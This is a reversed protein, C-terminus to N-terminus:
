SKKQSLVNSTRRLNISLKRAVGKLMEIGIRPHEQLIREFDKNPLLILGSREIARVTASRPLEDIMAMEGISDGQKITSLRTVNEDDDGVVDPECELPLTAEDDDKSANVSTSRQTEKLIDLKGAVVIAMFNGRDGEEFLVEGAELAKFSLYNEVIQFSYDDLNAFMPNHKLAAFLSYKPMPM